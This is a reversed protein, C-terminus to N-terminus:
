SDEQQPYQAVRWDAESVSLFGTQHPHWEQLVYRRAPRDDLMFRHLGPRHTHGHILHVAGHRRMTEEVTLQNVDMIEEAKISNAEGSKMRYERATALREAIPLSLFRRTFETDRIQQRFNQYALDDTCLLDGHMLLTPIGQLDIM